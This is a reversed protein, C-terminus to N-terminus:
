PRAITCALGHHIEGGGLLIDDPGYGLGVEATKGSTKQLDSAKLAFSYTNGHSDRGEYAMYDDVGTNGTYVVPVDGNPPDMRDAGAKRTIKMHGRRRQAEDLTIVATFSGDDCTLVRADTPEPAGGNTKELTFADEGIAALTLTTATSKISFIMHDDNTTTGEIDFSILTEGPEGAFVSYKGTSVVKEEHRTPLPIFPSFLSTEYTTTVRVYELEFKKGSSLTLKSIYSGDSPEREIAFTGTPVSTLESAAASAAGDDDSPNAACGATLSLLLLGLAVRQTM